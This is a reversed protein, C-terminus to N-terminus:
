LQQIISELPALQEQPILEFEQAFFIFYRFSRNVQEQIQCKQIDDLHHHYLHAYIRFLRRFVKSVIEIFNKPFPVDTDPPFISENEIIEETEEMVRCIYERACLTIPKDKTNIKQYLYKFGPGASMEPCTEEKCFDLLPNLIFSLQNYFDVTSVAIWENKNEGPPLKVGKRLDSM